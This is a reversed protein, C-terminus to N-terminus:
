VEVVEWLITKWYNTKKIQFSEMDNDIIPEKEKPKEKPKEPETFKAISNKIETKKKKSEFLAKSEMADIIKLDHDFLVKNITLYKQALDQLTKDIKQLNYEVGPKDLYKEFLSKFNTKSNETNDLLTKISQSYNRMTAFFKSTRKSHDEEIPIIEIEDEIVSLPISKRSNGSIELIKRRLKEYTDEVCFEALEETIQNLADVLNDFTVQDIKNREFAKSFQQQKAQIVELFTKVSDSYRAMDLKGREKMFGQHITNIENKANKKYSLDNEQNIKNLNSIDLENNEETEEIFNQFAISRQRSHKRAFKEKKEEEKEKEGEEGDFSFLKEISDRSLNLDNKEILSM